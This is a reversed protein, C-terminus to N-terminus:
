SERGTVLRDEPDLKGKVLEAFRSDVLGTVIEVARLKEGDVVWVHRTNRARLSKAKEPASRNAEGDEDPSSSWRSGDLLERDQPRVQQLDEPYFRLAANPIKWVDEISDVEFSISATMGPLLKL